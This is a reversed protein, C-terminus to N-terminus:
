AVVDVAFALLLCAGFLVPAGVASLRINNLASAVKENREYAEDIRSQLRDLEAKRQNALPDTAYRLLNRPENYVAPIPEVLMCDRVLWAALGMLYLCTGLSAWATLSVNASTLGSVAYSITGGIGALLVTLTVSAEKALVDATSHKGKMNEIAAGEIWKLADDSLDDMM